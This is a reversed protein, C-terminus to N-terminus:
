HLYVNHLDLCLSPADMHLYSWYKSKVEVVINMDQWSIVMNHQFIHQNTDNMERYIFHRTMTWGTDWTQWDFPISYKTPSRSCRLDLNTDWNHTKKDYENLHHLIHKLNTNLSAPDLLHKVVNLKQTGKITNLWKEQDQEGSYDAHWGSFM